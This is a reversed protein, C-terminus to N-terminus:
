KIIILWPIMIINKELINMLHIELQHSKKIKLFNPLEQNFVYLGYPNKDNISYSPTWDIPKPSNYDMVIIAGFVVVL